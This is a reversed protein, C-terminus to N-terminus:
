NKDQGKIKETLEESSLRVAGIAELEAMGRSYMNSIGDETFIIRYDRESAEYISSRPCNPFNFGTFVITNVGKGTLLEDLPTDYFAGFRPKYIIYENDKIQQFEGRLLLDTDLDCDQELISEVVKAGESGPLVRRLKGLELEERRCLDANTGDEMYLRVIHVVPRGTQRFLRALRSAANVTRKRDYRDEGDPHLFDIQMDITLLAANEYDPKTYKNM